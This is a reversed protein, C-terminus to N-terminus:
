INLVRRLISFVGTASMRQRRHGAFKRVFRSPELSAHTAAQRNRLQNRQRSTTREATQSDRCLQRNSTGYNKSTNRHFSIQNSHGQTHRSQGDDKHTQLRLGFGTAAVAAATVVATVVALRAAFGLALGSTFSLRSALAFGSGGAFAIATAVVTATLMPEAVAAAVITAVTSAAVAAVASAIASAAALHNVFACGNFLGFGSRRGRCVRGGFAFCRACLENVGYRM